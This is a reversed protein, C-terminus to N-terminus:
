TNLLTHGNHKKILEDDAHQIFVFVETQYYYYNFFDALEKPM